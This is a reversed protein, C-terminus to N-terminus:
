YFDSISQWFSTFDHTNDSRYRVDEYNLIKENLYILQDSLILGKKAKIGESIENQSLIYSNLAKIDINELNILSNNFNSQYKDSFHKFIEDRKKHLRKVKELLFNKYDDYFKEFIENSFDGKKVLCSYFKLEDSNISSSYIRKVSRAGIYKELIDQIEDSTWNLSNSELEYPEEFDTIILIGDESLLSTLNSLIWPLEFPSLEHLLLVASIIDYTSTEKLDFLSGVKFSPAFKKLSYEKALVKAKNVNGQNIDVGNYAIIKIWDRDCINSLVEMCRGEGCGADLWNVNRYEKTKKTNNLFNLFIQHNIDQLSKSQAEEKHDQYYKQHMTSQSQAIIQVILFVNELSPDVNTNTNRTEKQITVIDKTTFLEGNGIKINIPKFPVESQTNGEIIYHSLVPHILYYNNLSEPIKSRTQMFERDYSSKFKQKVEGSPDNLDVIGILGYNFLNTFIHDFPCSQCKYLCAVSNDHQNYEHCMSLLKEMSIVNQDLKRFIFEFNIGLITKLDNIYDKEFIRISQRIITESIKEWSREHLPIASIKGAVYILDRPRQIIHRFMYDFIDEGGNTLSFGCFAHIPEKSYLTKDFESTDEFKNICNNFINKLDEKNYHLISMHDLFRICNVDQSKDIKILIEQRVSTFVRINSYTNCITFVSKILGIQISYWMKQLIKKTKKVNKKVMLDEVAKDVSDIFITIKKDDIIKYLLSDITALLSSLVHDNITSREISNIINTLCISPKLESEISWSLLGKIFIQHNERLHTFNESIKLIKGKLEESNHTAHYIKSISSLYISISWIYEWNNDSSLFDWKEEIPDFLRLSDVEDKESPIIYHNLGQNHAYKLRKNKLLLTKGLGRLGVVYWFESQPNLFDMIEKTNYTFDIPNERLNKQMM